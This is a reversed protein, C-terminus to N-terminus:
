ATGGWHPVRAPDFLDVPLNVGFAKLREL